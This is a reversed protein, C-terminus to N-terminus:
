KRAEWLEMASLSVLGSEERLEREAADRPHEAKEITVKVFQNGALPHKFALVEIGGDTARTVIACAKEIKTM